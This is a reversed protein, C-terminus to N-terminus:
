PHDNGGAALVGGVYTALPPSTSEFMRHWADQPQPSDLPVVALDAWKGVAISGTTQEFGLAQAGRITGM